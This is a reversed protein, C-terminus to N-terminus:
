TGTKFNFLATSKLDEKKHGKLIVVWFDWVADGQFDGM